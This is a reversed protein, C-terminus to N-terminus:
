SEFGNQLCSRTQSDEWTDCEPKNGMGDTFGESYAARVLKTLDDIKEKLIQINQRMRMRSEVSLSDLCGCGGNTGIGKPKAFICGHAGCGELEKM